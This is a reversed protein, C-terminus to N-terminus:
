YDSKAVVYSRFFLGIFMLFLTFVMSTEYNIVKWNNNMKSISNNYTVMILAAMLFFLAVTSILFIIPNVKELM